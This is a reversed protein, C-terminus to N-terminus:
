KNIQFYSYSYQRICVTQGSPCSQIGATTFDDILSHVLMRLQAHRCVHKQKKSGRSIYRVFNLLIYVNKKLNLLNYLWSKYFYIEKLPVQGLHKQFHWLKYQM